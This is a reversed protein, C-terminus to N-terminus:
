GYLGPHLTRIITTAVPQIHVFKGGAWEVRWTGPRGNKIKSLTVEWRAFGLGPMDDATQSSIPKIQWRAVCAVTNEQRPYYRHILGTVHSSEVALQLRRSETFNLDPVEGVVAAVKNCKLAEEIVWLADTNKHVDVFLIRDPNIGFRRLAPPYISRRVAVWICYADKNTLKSLLGTIFGNTAATDERTYSIFEHVAAVPFTKGPFSQELLDLGLKMKNDSVDRLGQMSLIERQLQQILMKKEAAHTM